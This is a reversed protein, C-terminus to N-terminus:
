SGAYQAEAAAAAETAAPPAADEAVVSFLVGACLALILASLAVRKM